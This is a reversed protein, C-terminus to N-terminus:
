WSLVFESHFDFLDRGIKKEKVTHCPVGCSQYLSVRKLSSEMEEEILQVSSSGLQKRLVNFVIVAVEAESCGGSVARSM